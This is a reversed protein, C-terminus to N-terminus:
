QFYAFAFGDREESSVAGSFRREQADDCGQQEGRASVCFHSAEVGQRLRPVDAALEAIVSARVMAKVRPEGSAL